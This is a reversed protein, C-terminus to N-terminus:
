GFVTSSNDMSAYCGGKLADLTACTGIVTTKNQYKNKVAGWAVKHAVEERSDNGQRDDPDKYQDYASNFAERYIDQAHSPLVNKVNDPLQANTTYPM